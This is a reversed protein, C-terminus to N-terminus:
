LVVKIPVDSFFMSYDEKTRLKVELLEELSEIYAKREELPISKKLVCIYLVGEELMINDVYKNSVEAVKNGQILKYKM